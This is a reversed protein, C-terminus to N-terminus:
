ECLLTHIELYHNQEQFERFALPYELSNLRNCFNVQSIYKKLLGISSATQNIQGLILIEFKDSPLKLLDAVSLIFYTLDTDFEADFTNLFKIAGEYLYLITVEKHNVNVVLQNKKNTFRYGVGLLTENQHKIELPNFFQDILKNWVASIAFVLTAQFQHLKSYFVKNDSLNDHLLKLYSEAYQADFLAEPVLTYKKTDLFLRKNKFDLTFWNDNQLCAQWAQYGGPKEINPLQYYRLGIIKQNQILCLSLKEESMTIDLAYHHTDLANFTSDLYQYKTQLQTQTQM